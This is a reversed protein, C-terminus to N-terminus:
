AVGARFRSLGACQRLPRSLIKMASRRLRARSFCQVRAAKLIAEALAEASLERAVRRYVEVATVIAM